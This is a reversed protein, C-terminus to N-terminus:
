LDSGDQRSAGDTRSEGLNVFDTAHSRIRQWPMGETQRDIHHNGVGAGGFADGQSVLDDGKHQLVGISKPHLVCNPAAHVVRRMTRPCHPHAVVVVDVDGSRSAAVGRTPFGVEASGAGRGGASLSM